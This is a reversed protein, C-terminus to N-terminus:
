EPTPPEEPVSEPDAFAPREVLSADLSRRGDIREAVGPIHGEAVVGLVDERERGLWRLHGAMHADREDIHTAMLRPMIAAMVNIKAKAGRPRAEDWAMERQESDLPNWAGHRMLVEAYEVFPTAWEGLRWLDRELVDPITEASLAERHTSAEDRILRLWGGVDKAQARHFADTSEPFPRDILAVDAGIDTATRAAVFMEDVQWLDGDIRKHMLLGPLTVPERPDLAASLSWESGDEFVRPPLEVGVVDPERERIVSEVREISEDTNHTTGLLRVSGRM